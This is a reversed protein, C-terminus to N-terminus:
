EYYNKGGPTMQPPSTMVERLHAADLARLPSIEYWGDPEGDPRRPVDFGAGHLWHAARRIMDRRSTEASDVGTANKVPSFEEARATQLVMPKAALPIADFTFAELKVANPTAPEIRQGSADVYPVKKVARHWSLGFQAEDATLREVFARSLVHIAISGADFRRSGGEDKAHALEDPLDSYEIV